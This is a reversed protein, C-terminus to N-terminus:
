KQRWIDSPKLDLWTIAELWRSLDKPSPDFNNTGFSFKAGMEKALKLFQPRPYPSEAQIELAFRVPEGALREVILEEPVDKMAFRTGNKLPEAASAAAVVSLLATVFSMKRIM